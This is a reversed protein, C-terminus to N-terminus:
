EGGGPAQCVLVVDLPRSSYAIEQTEGNSCVLSAHASLVAPITVSALSRELNSAAERAGDDGPVDICFDSVVIPALQREPVAITLESPSANKGIAEGEITRRSDAVAVSLFQATFSEACNLTLRFQYELDPLQLPRRGGTRPAVAVQPTSVSMAVSHPARNDATLGSLLPAFTLVLTATRNMARLSRYRV